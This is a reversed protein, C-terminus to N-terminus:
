KSLSFNASPPRRFGKNWLLWSFDLAEQEVPYDTFRLCLESFSLSGELFSCHRASLLLLISAGTRARQTDQCLDPSVSTVGLFGLASDPRTSKQLWFEASKLQLRYMSGFSQAKRYEACRHLLSGTVASSMKNSSGLDKEADQREPLPHNQM